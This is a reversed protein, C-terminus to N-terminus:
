RVPPGKKTEKETDEETGQNKFIQKGPAQIRTREMRQRCENEQHDWEAFHSKKKKKKIIQLM